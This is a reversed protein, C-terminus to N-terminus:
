LETEKFFKKTVHDYFHGAVNSNPPPPPARGKSHKAPRQIKSCADDGSRDSALSISSSSLSTVVSLATNSLTIKAAITNQEDDDVTATDNSPEIKDVNCKNNNNEIVLPIMERPKQGGQQCSIIEEDRENDVTDEFIVLPVKLYEEDEEEKDSIVDKFEDFDNNISVVVAAHEDKVVNVNESPIETEDRANVQETKVSEKSSLTLNLKEDKRKMEMWRQFEAQMESSLDENKTRAEFASPNKELRLKNYAFVIEDESLENISAKRRPLDDEFHRSNKEMESQMSYARNRSLNRYYM